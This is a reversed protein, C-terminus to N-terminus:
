DYDYLQWGLDGANAKLAADLAAKLTPAAVVLDLAHESVQKRRVTISRKEPPKSKRRTM